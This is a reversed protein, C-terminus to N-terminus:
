LTVTMMMGFLTSVLMSGLCVLLSAQIDAHPIFASSRVTEPILYLTLRYSYFLVGVSLVLLLGLFGLLKQPLVPVLVLLVLLLRSLLLFIGLQSHHNSFKLFPHTNM